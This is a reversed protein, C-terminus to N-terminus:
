GRLLTRLNLSVSLILAILTVLGQFTPSEGGGLVLLLYFNIFHGKLEWGKPSLPM